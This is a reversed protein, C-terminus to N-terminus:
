QHFYRNGTAMVYNVETEYYNLEVRERNRTAGEWVGCCNCSTSSTINTGVCNERMFYFSISKKGVIELQVLKGGM